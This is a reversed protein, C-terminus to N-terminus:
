RAKAAQRAPADGGALSGIGGAQAAALLLLACGLVAARVRQSRAKAKRWRGMRPEQQQGGQEEIGM